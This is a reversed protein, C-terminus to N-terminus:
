MKGVEVIPNNNIKITNLGAKKFLTGYWMKDKLSKVTLNVQYYDGTVAGMKCDAVNPDKSMVSIAKAIDGPKYIEFTILTNTAFFTAPDNAMPHKIIITKASMEASKIAAPNAQAYSNSNVAAVSLLVSLSLTRLIEM